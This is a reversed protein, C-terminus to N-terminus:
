LSPSHSAHDPRPPPWPRGRVERDDGAQHDEREHRPQQEVSERGPRPSRPSRTAPPKTRRQFFPAAERPATGTTSAMWAAQHGRLERAADQRRSWATGDGPPAAAGNAAKDTAGGGTALTGASLIDLRRFPGGTPEGAGCGALVLPLGAALLLSKM